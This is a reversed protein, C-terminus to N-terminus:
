HRWQIWDTLRYSIMHWWQFPLSRVHHRRSHSWQLWECHCILGPRITTVRRMNSPQLYLSLDNTFRSASLYQEICVLDQEPM